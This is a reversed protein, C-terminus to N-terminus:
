EKSTIKSQVYQINKLKLLKCNNKYFCVLACKNIHCIHPIFIFSFRMFYMFM